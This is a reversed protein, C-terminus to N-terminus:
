LNRAGGAQDSGGKAEESSPGAIEAIFDAYWADPVEFKKLLAHVEEMFLRGRRAKESSPAERDGLWESWKQPEFRMDFPLPLGYRAQIEHKGMLYRPDRHIRDWLSLGRGRPPTEFRDSNM